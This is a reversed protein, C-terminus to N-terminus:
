ADREHVGDSSQHKAHKLASIGLWLWLASGGLFMSRGLFWNFEKSVFPLGGSMQRPDGFFAVWSFLLAMLLMSVGVMRTATPSGIRFFVSTGALVIGFGIAILLWDPVTPHFVRQPIIDAGVLVVFTGVCTVAAAPAFTKTDM